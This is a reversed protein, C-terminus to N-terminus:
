ITLAHDSYPYDHAELSEQYSEVRDAAIDTRYFQAIHYVADGENVLPLKLLGIIIGSYPSRIEQESEGFPDSVVGLVTQDKLVREGERVFARFIGSQPARVWASSRAMVPEKPQLRRSPPLMNLARMVRLIGEVGGRISVEDFRLAEGAEYLLTPIKNQGAAERLSGERLESNLIVPTGFAKALRLAEPDDLDARIQPLNFRHLAGTHLDIGHTAQSVVETMFLRALRGAMSGKNSGPFSRNLDRRDPLYRSQNIFGHLNVVPVALLTGKLRKLAPVKLLRRIIEVGNIEDGHIAASIFLVPGHQRGCLVQVPMTVPTHTYLKSGRVDITKREGPKVEVGGICISRNKSRVHESM